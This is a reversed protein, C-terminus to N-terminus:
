KKKERAIEAIQRRLWTDGPRQANRRHFVISLRTHPVDIPLARIALGFAAALPEAARRSVTCLLDSDALMPGIAMLHAAIAALNRSRGIASLARDVAGERSGTNSVLLHPAALFADLTSRGKAFPHRPDCLVVFTERLLMTQVLAAPAQGLVGVALAIEDKELLDFASLRDAHRITLGVGPAIQRLRRTLPPGFVFEAYDSMGVVFHSQATAPDFRTDLLLAREIQALASAVPEALRAGFETPEIGRGSRVFLPDDFTERLRALANSTAPQSLGLATAARTVSRERNLAAFVRLLNLDLRNLINQSM